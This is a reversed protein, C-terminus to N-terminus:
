FGWISAFFERSKPSAGPRSPNKERYGRMEAKLQGTRKPFSLSTKLQFIVPAKCSATLLFGQLCLYPSIGWSHSATEPRIPSFPLPSIVCGFWPCSCADKAAASVLPADSTRMRRKRGGGPCVVKGEQMRVVPCVFRLLIWEDAWRMTFVAHLFAGVDWVPPLVLHLAGQAHVGVGWTQVVRVEAAPVGAYVPVLIVVYAHCPVYVRVVSSDIKIINSIGPYSNKLYSEGLSKETEKQKTMKQKSLNQYIRWLLFSNAQM